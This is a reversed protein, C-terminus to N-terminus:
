TKSVVLAVAAVISAFAPGIVAAKVAPTWQGRMALQDIKAELRTMTGRMDASLDKVRDALDDLRDDNWRDPSM